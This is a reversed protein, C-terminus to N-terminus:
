RVIRVCVPVRRQPHCYLQSLKAELRLEALPGAPLGAWAGGGNSHRLAPAEDAGPASSGLDDAAEGSAGSNVPVDRRPWGEIIDHLASVFQLGVPSTM